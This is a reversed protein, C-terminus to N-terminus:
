QFLIQFMRFLFCVKCPQCFAAEVIKAFPISEHQCGIKIVLEFSKSFLLAVQVKALWMEVGACTAHNQHDFIALIAWARAIMRSFHQTLWLFRALWLVVQVAIEHALLAKTIPRMLKILEQPNASGDWGDLTNSRGM